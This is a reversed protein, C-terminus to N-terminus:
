LMPGQGSKRDTKALTVVTDKSCATVYVLVYHSTESYVLVYSPITSTGGLRARVGGVFRLVSGNLGPSILM